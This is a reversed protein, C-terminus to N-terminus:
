AALKRQAWVLDAMVQWDIVGSRDWEDVATEIDRVQDFNRGFWVKVGDTQVVRTGNKITKM